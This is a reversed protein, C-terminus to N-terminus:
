RMMASYDQFISDAIRQADVPYRGSAVADKIRTVRDADFPPGQDVMREIMGLSASTSLKVSDVASLPQHARAGSAGGPASETSIPMLRQRAAHSSNVSDVM